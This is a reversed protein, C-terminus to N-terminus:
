PSGLSYVRVGGLLGAIAFLSGDPSFCLSMYFKGADGKFSLIEQGTQANWVKTEDWCACALCKSDPSFSVSNDVGIRGKLSFVEQGTQADWVKVTGDNSASAL